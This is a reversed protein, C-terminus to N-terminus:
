LEKVGNLATRITMIGTANAFEVTRGYNGGTDEAVVNIRFRLLMEKCMEINRSGIKMSESQTIFQFMQAGGAIKAEMRAVSAGLAVMQGIMEPIATDAYKAVNMVQHRMIGSHPLMVHALGAIKKQRDYIAIGVCSGLGMTKLVGFADNTVKLDAMGVKVLHAEMM